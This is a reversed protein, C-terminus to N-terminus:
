YIMLCFQEPVTSTAILVLPLATDLVLFSSQFFCNWFSKFASYQNFFHQLDFFQFHLSVIMNLTCDTAWCTGYSEHTWSGEWVRIWGPPGPQPPIGDPPIDFSSTDFSSLPRWNPWEVTSFLCYVASHWIPMLLLLTWSHLNKNKM